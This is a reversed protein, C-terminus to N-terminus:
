NQVGKMVPTYKFVAHRQVSKEPHSQARNTHLGHMGIKNNSRVSQIQTHTHAREALAETEPSLLDSIKREEEDTVMVVAAARLLDIPGTQALVYVCM